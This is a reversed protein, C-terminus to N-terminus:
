APGREAGFRTLKQSNRRPIAQTVSKASLSTHVSPDLEWSQRRSRRASALDPGNGDHTVLRVHDCGHDVVQEVLADVVYENRVVSRHVPRPFQEGAHSHVVTPDVDREIFLRGM